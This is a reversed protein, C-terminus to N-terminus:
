NKKEEGNEGGEEFFLFADFLSSMEKRDYKEKAGHSSSPPVFPSQPSLSTCPNIHSNSTSYNEHNIM